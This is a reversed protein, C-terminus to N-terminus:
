LFCASGVTNEREKCQDKYGSACHKLRQEGCSASQIGCQTVVNRVTCFQSLHPDKKEKKRLTCVSPPIVKKRQRRYWNELIKCPRSVSGANRGFGAAKPLFRSLYASLCIKVPKWVNPPPNKGRDSFPLCLTTPTLYFNFVFAESRGNINNHSFSRKFLLHWM